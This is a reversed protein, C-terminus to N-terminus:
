TLGTGSIIWETSSIKIATAVGNAALTRTGTTGTGALRMTDSTITISLVGAGNGNVFTVATGIALPNSANSPITYTHPSGSSHYIHKGGDLAVIGYAENKLNQPIDPGSLRKTVGTSDYSALGYYPSVFLYAGNSPPVDPSVGATGIFITDEQSGGGPSAGAFVSLNGCEVSLSASGSGSTSIQDTVVTGNVTLTLAAKDALLWYDGEIVGGSNFLVQKDLGPAEITGGGDLNLNTVNLNTVTTNAVSLTDTGENFTLGVTDVWETGDYHLLAGTAISPNLDVDSLDELTTPVVVDNLVQIALEILSKREESNFWPKLIRELDKTTSM